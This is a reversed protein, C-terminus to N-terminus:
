ERIWHSGYLHVLPSRVESPRSPHQAFRGFSPHSKALMPSIFDYKGNQRYKDQLSQLQDIAGVTGFSKNVM